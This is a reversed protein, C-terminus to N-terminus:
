CRLTVSTADAYGGQLECPRQAETKMVLSVLNEVNALMNEDSCVNM